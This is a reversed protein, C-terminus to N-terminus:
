IDVHCTFVARGTVDENTLVISKRGIAKSSTNWSEDAVPNDSLREWNFNSADITDTIDETGRFVTAIMTTSAQNPRFINGNTSLIQVSISDEGKPGEVEESLSIFGSKKIFMTESYYYSFECGFSAYRNVLDTKDVVLTKGNRETANWVSDASPDSSVRYWRFNETDYDLTKDTGDILIKVTLTSPSGDLKLPKATAHIAVELKIRDDMGSILGTELRFLQEDVLVAISYYDEFLKSMSPKDSIDTNKNRNVPDLIFDILEELDEFAEIYDLYQQQHEIGFREAQALTNLRLAKLSEWQAEILNKEQPTIIKDSEIDIIKNLVGTYDVNLLKAEARQASYSPTKRHKKKLLVIDDAYITKGTKDEAYTM